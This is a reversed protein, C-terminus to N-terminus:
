GVVKFTDWKSSDVPSDGNEYLGFRTATNNAASSHTITNTTDGDITITFDNGSMVAEIAYSQGTTLTFTSTSARIYQDFMSTGGVNEILHFGEHRGGSANENRSRIIWYASTSTFRLVFGAQGENAGVVLNGTLTVDSAGADATAITKATATTVAYNSLIEFTSTHNTWGDGTNMTHDDLDVGDTDTFTDHLLTSPVYAAGRSGAGITGSILGRHLM